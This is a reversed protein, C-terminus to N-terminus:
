GSKCLHFNQRFDKDTQTHMDGSGEDTREKSICAPSLQTLSSSYPTHFLLHEGPVAERSCLVHTAIRQTIIFSTLTHMHTHGHTGSHTQIKALKLGRLEWQEKCEDGNHIKELLNERM